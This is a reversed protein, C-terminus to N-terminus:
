QHHESHDTTPTHIHDYGMAHMRNHLTRHASELVMKMCKYAKEEARTGITELYAMAGEIQELITLADAAALMKSNKVKVMVPSTHATIIEPKDEYHGRVLLALWSSKSIQVNWSGSGRWKQFLREKGCRAM